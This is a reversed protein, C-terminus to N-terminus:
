HLTDVILKLSQDPTKSVCTAKTGARLEDTNQHRPKADEEQGGKIRQPTCTLHSPQGILCLLLM